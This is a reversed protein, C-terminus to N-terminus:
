AAHVRPLDTTRLALRAPPSYSFPHARLDPLTSFVQERAEKTLAMLTDPNPFFSETPVNEAFVVQHEEFLMHVYRTDQKGTDTTITTGNILGSAPALVENEGFQDNFRRSRLLFRHAPSVWMDAMPLDPGFADKRVKIPALHPAVHLRARTIERSGIWLLPQLGNDATHILDGPTLDQIPMHGFATLIRTDPTFCVMSQASVSNQASLPRIDFIAEGRNLQGSRLIIRRNSQTDSKAQIISFRILRQRRTNPLVVGEFIPSPGPGNNLYYVQNNIKYQLTDLPAANIFTDEPLLLEATGEQTVTIQDNREPDGFVEYFALQV